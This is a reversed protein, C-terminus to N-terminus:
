KSISFGPLDLPQSLGLLKRMLLSCPSFLNKKCFPAQPLLVQIYKFLTKFIAGNEPLDSNIRSVGPQFNSPWISELAYLSRALMEDATENQGSARFTCMKDSMTRGFSCNLAAVLLARELM